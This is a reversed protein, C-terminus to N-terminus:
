FMKDDDPPTPSEHDVETSAEEQKAPAASKAAKIIKNLETLQTRLFNEADTYDKQKKGKFTVEQPAPLKDSAYFGKILVDDQRLAASAFIKDGAKKPKSNYLSISVKEFTKLSLLSNMINRGLNNGSLTVYYVEDKDELVVSVSKILEEIGNIITKNEKPEVSVITGAVYTVPENSPVVEWKGEANKVKVEFYPAPVDKIKIKFAYAKKNSNSTPKGFSM